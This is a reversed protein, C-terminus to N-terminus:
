SWNEMSGVQPYRSVVWDEGFSFYTDRPIPFLSARSKLSKHNTPFYLTSFIGVKNQNWNYSRSQLNSLAWSERRVNKVYIDRYIREM